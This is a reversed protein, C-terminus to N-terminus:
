FPVDKSSSDDIDFDDLFSDDNSQSPGASKFDVFQFNNVRVETIYKTEGNNDEWSRTELSGEIYIQNGKEFYQAIAEAIKHWAVCRHWTTRDVKEGSKDKYSVSTAVRFITRPIQDQTVSTEPDAGLRGLLIVKNVSAM